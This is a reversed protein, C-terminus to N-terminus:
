KRGIKRQHQTIVLWAQSYENISLWAFSVPLFGFGEVPARAFIRWQPTRGWCLTQNQKGLRKVRERREKGAEAKQGLGTNHRWSSLM